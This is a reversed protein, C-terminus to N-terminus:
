SVKIRNKATDAFCFRSTARSLIVLRFTKSKVETPREIVFFSKVQQKVDLNPSVSEFISIKEPLEEIIEM